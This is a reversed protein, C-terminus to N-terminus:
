TCQPGACAAVCSHLRLNAAPSAAAGPQHSNVAGGRGAGGPTGRLDDDQRQLAGLQEHTARQGLGGLTRQCRPPAPCWCPLAPSGCACARRARRGAWGQVARGRVLGGVPWDAYGRGPRSSNPGGPVPLVMSALATAESDPAWKMLTLMLAMVDLHNPSPSRRTLHPARRPPIRAPYCRLRGAGTSRRGAAWSPTAGASRWRRRRTRGAGGRARGCPHLASNASACLSDGDTIKTSSISENRELRPWDDLSCSASRLIFFSHIVTRPAAHPRCPSRPMPRHRPPCAAASGSGHEGGGTVGWGEGRWRAGAGCCQSPRRVLCCSRTSTSAAVLRGMTRVQPPLLRAAAASPVGAAREKGRRAGALEHGNSGGSRVRVGGEGRGVGGGRVGGWGSGCLVQVVSHDAAHRAADKHRQGVGRLALADQLRAPRPCGGEGAWRGERACPRGASGVWELGSRGVGVWGGAWM